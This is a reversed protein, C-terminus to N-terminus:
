ATGKTKLCIRGLSAVSDPTPNVRRVGGEIACGSPLRKCPEKVLM